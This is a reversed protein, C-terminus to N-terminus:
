RTAGTPKSTPRGLRAMLEARWDGLADALRVPKGTLGRVSLRM